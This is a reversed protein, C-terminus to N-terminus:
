LKPPDLHWDASAACCRLRIGPIVDTLVPTVKKTLLLHIAGAGLRSFV